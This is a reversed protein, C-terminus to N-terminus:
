LNLVHLAIQKIREKDKKNLRGFLYFGTSADFDYFAYWYDSKKAQSKNAKQMEVLQKANADFVKDSVKNTDLEYYLYSEVLIWRQLASIKLKESWYPNKFQM